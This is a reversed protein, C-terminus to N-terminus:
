RQQLSHSVILSAPRSCGELERAERIALCNLISFLSECAFKYTSTYNFSIVEKCVKAKSCSELLSPRVSKEVVVM